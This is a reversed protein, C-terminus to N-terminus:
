RNALIAVNAFHVAGALKVASQILPAKRAERDAQSQTAIKPAYTYYGSSLTDGQNLAGFGPANWQGPAVLGNNVAQDLQRNITGVIQNIGADTQPVKPSTYLLNYVATQIDNQLWSLGHVEDFFYGNAMVGQQLISTANNYKVFVNGNNAALAANQSTSLDEAVVGPEQKFKLTITTNSGSFDVTFARGMASVAAYPNTSSYQWFTRQLNAQKLQYGVSTTQGAVIENTDTSTVAFVRSVGTAEIFQAVALVDSAGLAADAIALGYWDSSKDALLTVATLATEAAIGAVLTPANSAQIKLLAALPSNAAVSVTSTVGTTASKIVFRATNADWVASGHTTLATTIIGAVANLNAAASLNIGTVPVSVGDFSITLAGTTIAQFPGMAQEATTLPAGNLSGSTATKAWEGIYVTSPQPSQSFFLAAAAYEPASTGFDTAVEDISSYQRLREDTNIVGSSGLILLSGFNRAQAAIPSLSVTVNVIQSVSLAM